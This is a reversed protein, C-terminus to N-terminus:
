VNEKSLAHLNHLKAAQNFHHVEMLFENLSPFPIQPLAASLSWSKCLLTVSPGHLVLMFYFPLDLCNTGTLALDSM